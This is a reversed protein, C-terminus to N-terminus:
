TEHRFRSLLARVEQSVLDAVKQDKREIAINGGGLSPHILESEFDLRRAELTIEAEDDRSFRALSHEEAISLFDEKSMTAICVKPLVKENKIINEEKGESQSLDFKAM